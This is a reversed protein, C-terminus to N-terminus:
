FTWMFTYLHFTKIPINEGVRPQSLGLPEDFLAPLGNLPLEMSLQMLNQTLFMRHFTKVPPLTQRATSEKSVARQLGLGVLGLHIVAGAEQGDLDLRFM